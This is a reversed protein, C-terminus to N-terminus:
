FILTKSKSITVALVGGTPHRKKEATIEFIYQLILFYQPCLSEYVPNFINFYMEM